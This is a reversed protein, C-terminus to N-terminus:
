INMYEHITCVDIGSYKGTTSVGNRLYPANRYFYGGRIHGNMAPFNGITMAISKLAIHIPTVEVNSEERKKDLYRLLKSLDVPFRMNVRSHPMSTLSAALLHSSSTREFPEGLHKRLLFRVSLCLSILFGLLKKDSLCVFCSLYVFGFLSLDHMHCTIYHLYNPAFM